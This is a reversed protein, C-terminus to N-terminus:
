ITWRLIQCRSRSSDRASTTSYQYIRGYCYRSDDCQPIGRSHRHQPATCSEDGDRYYARLLEGRDTPAAKYSYGNETSSPDRRCHRKRPSGSRHGREPLEHLQGYVHGSCSGCTPCAAREVEACKSRRKHNRRGIRGDRRNFDSDTGTSAARSGYPRRIRLHDPHQAAHSAMLMGPTIKDCNSICVMADAKHANVMYEVSDAILDRSPLSYLCATMDWLLVTM